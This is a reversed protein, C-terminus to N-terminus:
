EVTTTPSALAAEALAAARACAAAAGPTPADSSIGRLVRACARLGARARAAGLAAGAEEQGPAVAGGASGAAGAGGAEALLLGVKRCLVQGLEAFGLGADTALARECLEAYDASGRCDSLRARVEALEASLLEWAHTLGPGTCVSLWNHNVSLTLACAPDGALAPPPACACAAPAPPPAGALACVCVPGLNVVEHHWGSPVFLADGPAQLIARLPAGPSCPSGSPPCALLAQLLAASLPQQPLSAAAAAAAAPAAAGGGGLAQRLLACAEGPLLTDTALPQFRGRPYLAAASAAPSALLWLKVGQVSCSWSHSALVDHHLPTRTGPFGAYLFRFAGSGGAPQADLYPNLADDCLCPPLRYAAAALPLPLRWDKLYGAGGRLFAALPLSARAGGGYASAPAAEVPVPTAGGGLSAALSASGGRWAAACPWAAALGPLLAPENAAHHAAFAAPTCSPVACFGARRLADLVEM